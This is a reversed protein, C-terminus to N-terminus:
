EGVKNGIMVRKITGEIVLADEKEIKSFITSKAAKLPDRHRIMQESWDLLRRTSFTTRIEENKFSERVMNAVSVIRTAIKETLKPLSSTLVKIELEQPLYEIHYVRWRDLFADNMINAGQYMHRFESMCGITNGTAFLRFDKHPEIVEHGKEKLTLKGGVETLANLVSLCGAEGMDIEDIITWFGNRVAMTILGDVWETSGGKVTWFGVFDGITIQGNLNIRLVGQGLRAALEMICSTKGTGTHGTLMVNKKENIDHAIDFMHDGFHYAENVKPIFESRIDGKAFKFKELKVGAVEFYNLTEKVAERKEAKPKEKKIKVEGAEELLSPHIIEEAGYMEIYDDLGGHEETIHPELNLSEFECIKCKM